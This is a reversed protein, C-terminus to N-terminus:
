KTFSKIIETIVMVHFATEDGALSLVDKSYSLCAAPAKMKLPNKIAAVEDTAGKIRETASKILEVQLEIRAKLETADDIMPKQIAADAVGQANQGHMAYYMEIVLPTIQVSNVAIVACNSALADVDTLGSAKPPNVLRELKAMRSRAASIDEASQAFLNVSVCLALAFVILKNM